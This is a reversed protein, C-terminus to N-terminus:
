CSFRGSVKMCSSFNAVIHAAIIMEDIRKNAVDQNLNLGAVIAPTKFKKTVYRKNVVLVARYTQVEM